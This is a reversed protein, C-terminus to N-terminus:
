FERALPKGKAHYLLVSGDPLVEAVVGAGFPHRYLKGDEAHRYRIEIVRM